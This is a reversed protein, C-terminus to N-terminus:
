SLLRRIADVAVVRLRRSNLSPFGLSRCRLMGLLVSRVYRRYLLRSEVVCGARADCIYRM